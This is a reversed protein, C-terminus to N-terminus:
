WAVKGCDYGDPGYGWNTLVPELERELYTREELGLSKWQGPRGVRFHHSDVPQLDNVSLLPQPTYPTQLLRSLVAQEYECFGFALLHEYRLVLAGRRHLWLAWNTHWQDWRLDHRRLNEWFRVPSFKKEPYTFHYQSLLADRGDRIVAIVPVNHPVAPPDHTKVLRYVPAKAILSPNATIVKSVGDPTTGTRANYEAYKPDIGYGGNPFARLLELAVLSNGSRPFSVLWVDTTM